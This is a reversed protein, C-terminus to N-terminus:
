IMNWWVFNNGKSSVSSKKKENQTKAEEEEEFPDFTTIDDEHPSSSKSDRVEPWFNLSSHDGERHSWQKFEVHTHQRSKWTKTNSICFWANWKPKSVKPIQATPKSRDAQKEFPNQKCKM